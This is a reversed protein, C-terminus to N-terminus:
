FSFIRSLLVASARKRGKSWSKSYEKEYLEVFKDLKKDEELDQELKAIDFDEAYDLERLLVKYLIETIRDGGSRVGRDMSVDFIISKTPIKTGIFDLFDAIQKNNAQKKFLDKANENLIKRGELVYGLIKAFSSKGSGFFGSVWIGIGEHPSTPAESYTRLVDIFHDKIADTVVYETIEEKVVSEEIQTVKIVEEIRRDIPKEFIDKIKM